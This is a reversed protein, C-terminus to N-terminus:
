SVTLFARQELYPPNSRHQRTVNNASQAEPSETTRMEGWAGEHYTRVPCVGIEPWWIPNRTIQFVAIPNEVLYRPSTKPAILMGPRTTALM